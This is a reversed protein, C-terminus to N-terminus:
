FELQDCQAILVEVIVCGAATGWQTLNVHRWGGIFEGVSRPQMATSKCVIVYAITSLFSSSNTNEMQFTCLSMMNGVNNLNM